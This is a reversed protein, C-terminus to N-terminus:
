AGEGAIKAPDLDEIDRRCRAEAEGYWATHGMIRAHDEHGRCVKAAAELAARAGSERAAALASRPAFMEDVAAHANVILRKWTALCDGCSCEVPHRETRESM